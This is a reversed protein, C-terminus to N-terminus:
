ATFASRRKPFVAIHVNVRKVFGKELDLSRFSLDHVTEKITQSISQLSGGAADRGRELGATIGLLRQSYCEM